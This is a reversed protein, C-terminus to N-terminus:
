DRKVIGYLVVEILDELLKEKESRSYENLFLPLELGKLMTTFAIAGIEPNNIIFAGERIGGELIARVMKIEEDEFKKRVRKVFLMQELCDEKLVTYFNAVTKVHYLRFMIYDKLREIPSKGSSIVKNLQKKLEQAERVVVAEFIEEKSNYYYYMSSKGMSAAHALEDMTTNKYGNRSFVKRAAGVIVSRIESKVVVM